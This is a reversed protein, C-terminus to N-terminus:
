RHVARATRTEWFSIASTVPVLIRTALGRPRRGSMLLSNIRRFALKTLTLERTTNLKSFQYPPLLHTLKHHRHRSERNKARHHGCRLSLDEMSPRRLVSILAEVKGRANIYPIATQCTPRRDSLLSRLAARLAEGAATLRLPAQDAVRPAAAPRPSVTGRCYRMFHQGQILPLGHSKKLNAWRSGTSCKRDRQGYKRSEHCAQGKSSSGLANRGGAPSAGGAPADFMPYM